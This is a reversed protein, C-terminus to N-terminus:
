GGWIKLLVVKGKISQKGGKPGSWHEGWRIDDISLDKEASGVSMSLWTAGIFVVGTSM